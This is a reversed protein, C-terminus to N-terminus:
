ASAPRSRWGGRPGNYEHWFINHKAALLNAMASVRRSTPCFGSRTSCTRCCGRIRIPFPPDRARRSARSLRRARVSGPYHGAVKCTARTSSSRSRKGTGTAAFFENLDFEDFEGASAVTLLEDPMQYTLLRM